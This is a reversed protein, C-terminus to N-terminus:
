RIAERPLTRAVRFGALSFAVQPSYGFRQASRVEPAASFFSGGRLVREQAARIPGSHERDEIREPLYPARADHCWEWANGLMDFLGYDNPKLGGVPHATGRSNGVNWAYHDLLDDGGGFSRSTVAGGRCGYEWEAETPLRYGSLALYNAPLQMGDKIEPISPYCMQDKPIGEQESLWRCYQAAVFWTVGLVPSDPELEPCYTETPRWNHHVDPNAKLFERFQQVTVEKTALAFSRPIRCRHPAEEPNRGPEQEPSGMRFEVPGRLM